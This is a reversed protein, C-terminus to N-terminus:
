DNSPYEDESIKTQLSNVFWGFNKQAYEMQETDQATWDPKDLYFLDLAFGKKFKSLHVAIGVVKNCDKAIGRAVFCRGGLEAVVFKREEDYAILFIYIRSSTMVSPVVRSRSKNQGIFELFLKGLVRRSFRDEMAMIRVVQEADNLTSGFELVENLADQSISEILEDWTYSQSNAEIKSRYENSNSYGHWYDDAIMILSASMDFQRNNVLYYALLDEEGGSDVWYQTDSEHLNEKAALYAIFDHITDLEKLILAFSISDFIHVVGKGYDGSMIPIKGQSGLSVSIRFVKRTDLPPLPLGQSGDNKTVSKANRLWREAGYIQDVSKDVANKLWRQADVVDDGSNSLSIDKVSFIIIYIDFVVLIDCLEKGKKGLPNAYSWLSLFSKRCTRYVFQESKNMM